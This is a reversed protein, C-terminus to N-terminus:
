NDITQIEDIIILKYKKNIISLHLENILTEDQINTITKLNIYFIREKESSISSVKDITKDEDKTSINKLYNNFYNKGLQEILVAKWSPMFWNLM